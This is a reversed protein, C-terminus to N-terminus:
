FCVSPPVPGRLLKTAVASAMCTRVSVYRSCRARESTLFNLRRNFKSAAGHARIPIGFLSGLPIGQSWLDRMM